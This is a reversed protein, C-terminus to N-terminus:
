RQRCAGQGRADRVIYAFWRMLQHYLLMFYLTADLLTFFTWDCCRQLMIVPM